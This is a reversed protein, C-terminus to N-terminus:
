LRKESDGDLITEEVEKETWGFERLAYVWRNFLNAEGRDPNYIYRMRRFWYRSVTRYEETALGKDIQNSKLLLGLREFFHAIMSISTLLELNHEIRDIKEAPHVQDFHMSARLRCRVLVESNWESSLAVLRAIKLQEENELKARQDQEDYFKNLGSQLKIFKLVYVLNIFVLAITAITYVLNILAGIGVWNADNLPLSFRTLVVEWM